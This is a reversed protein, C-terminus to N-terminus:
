RVWFSLFARDDFSAAGPNLRKTGMLLNTCEPDIQLAKTLYEESELLTSFLQPYGDSALVIHDGRSVPYVLIHNLHIKGGNLM